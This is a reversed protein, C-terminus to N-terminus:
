QAEVQLQAERQQEEDDGAVPEHGAGRVPDHKPQSSPPELPGPGGRVGAASATTTDTTKAVFGAVAAERGADTASAFTPGFSSPGDLLGADAATAAARKPIPGECGGAAAENM